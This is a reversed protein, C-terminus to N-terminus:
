KIFKHVRDFDERVINFLVNYLRQEAPMPSAKKRKNLDNLLEKHKAEYKDKFVAEGSLTKGNVSRNQQRLISQLISETTEGFRYNYYLEVYKTFQDYFTKGEIEKYLKRGNDEFRLVIQGTKQHISMAEPLAIYFDEKEPIYMTNKYIDMDPDYEKDTYFFPSTEEKFMDLLLMKAFTRHQPLVEEPLDDLTIKDLFQAFDHHFHYKERFTAKDYVMKIADYIRYDELSLGYKSKLVLATNEDDAKEFRHKPNGKQFGLMEMALDESGAVFVIHEEKKM